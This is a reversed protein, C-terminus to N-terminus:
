DERRMRLGHLAFAAALLLGFLVANGAIVITMAWLWDM